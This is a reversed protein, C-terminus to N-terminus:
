KIFRRRLLQHALKGGLSKAGKGSWVGVQDEDALSASTPVVRQLRKTAQEAKYLENEADFEGAARNKALRKAAEFAMDDTIGHFEFLHRVVSIM